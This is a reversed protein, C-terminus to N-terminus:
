KYHLFVFFQIIDGLILIEKYHLVKLSGNTIVIM